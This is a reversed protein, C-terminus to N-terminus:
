SAAIKSLLDIANLREPRDAVPDPNAAVARLGEVYANPLSNREAGAIVLDRYWDYPVLATNSSQALALYTVADVPSAPATFVQFDQCAYGPGEHRDLDTKESADISFIVGYVRASADNAKILTAKGSGDKSIKHFVLEYGDVWASGVAHASKCRRQLREALM